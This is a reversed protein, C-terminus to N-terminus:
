HQSEFQTTSLCECINLFHLMGKYLGNSAVPNGAVMQVIDFNCLFSNLNKLVCDFKVNLKPAFSM